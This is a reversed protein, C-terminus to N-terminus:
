CLRHPSNGQSRFRESVSNADLGIKQQAKRIVESLHEGIHDSAELAIKMRQLLEVRSLFFEIDCWNQPVLPDRDRDSLTRIVSNKDVVVSLRPVDESIRAGAALLSGEGITISRGSTVYVSVGAGLWVDNEIKLEGGPEVYIEVVPGILVNKGVTVRGELLLKSNRNIFYYGDNGINEAGHIYFPLVFSASSGLLCRAKETTMVKIFRPDLATSEDDYAEAQAETMARAPKGGFISDAPVDGTVVSDRLIRSNEGIILPVGNRRSSVVLVNRELHVNDRIVIPCNRTPLRQDPHVNHFVTILQSDNGINVQDGFVICGHALLNISEGLQLNRGFIVNCFYEGTLGYGIRASDLNEEACNCFLSRFNSEHDKTFREFALQDCLKILRLSPSESELLTIGQVVRFDWPEIAVIKV